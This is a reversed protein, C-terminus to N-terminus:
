GRVRASTLASVSPAPVGDTTRPVTSAAPRVRAAPLALRFAVLAALSVTVLCLAGVVVHLTAIDAAKGTWITCAGLTAQALILIQWTWALRTLITHGAAARVIKRTILVSAILVVLAGIRHAMHVYIQFPTITVDAHASNIRIMTEPDTAPWLKGYALPFDPIALGAHEHRLTAGLLLQAFVLCAGILLWRPAQTTLGSSEVRRWLKSTMFALCVLLTLFSQALAAHLIGIQDKFWVVRLGGLIGQVIVLVLALVGLRRLAPRSEKWLLWGTLAMTLFGVWSAFLRHTHEYFIGGKWESIPFFFMNYGYTTPWDPVAMGAGKSTVLGGIAILALTNLATFVAFRHLWPNTDSRNM